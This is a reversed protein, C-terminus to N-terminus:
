SFFPLWAASEGFGGECNYEDNPDNNVEEMWREVATARIKDPIQGLLSGSRSRSTNLLRQLNIALYTTLLKSCEPKKSFLDLLYLAYLNTSHYHLANIGPFTSLSVPVQSLPLYLQDYDIRAVVEKAQHLSTSRFPFLLMSVSSPILVPISM